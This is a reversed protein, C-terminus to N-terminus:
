AGHPALPTRATVRTLVPSCPLCASGAHDTNLLVELPSREFDQNKMADAAICM